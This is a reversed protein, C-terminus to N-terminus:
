PKLRSTVTQVSYRTLPPRNLGATVNPMTIVPDKGGILPNIKAGVCIMAPIQAAATALPITGPSIRLVCVVNAGPTPIACPKNRSITRQSNDRDKSQRQELTNRPDSWVSVRKGV